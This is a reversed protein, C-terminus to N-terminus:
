RDRRFRKKLFALLYDADTLPARYALHGDPRMLWLRRGDGYRSRFEGHQDDWLQVKEASVGADELEFPGQSIVTVQLEHLYEDPLRSLLAHLIVWDRHDPDEGPQLLLHHLPQRLLEHVRCEDGQHRSVLRADPMRDGPLPGQHRRGLEEDPSADVLPSGRYDLNLQSAYRLIRRELNPRSGAFRLLSDRAGRLVRAQVLSARSLIDVSRLMEEAVPRREQQYSDLLAGGGRGQCFQALKWALNFADGIGTNMGQAAAPSQVHCADGALLIRNRRYESVLRRQIVLRSLLRPEGPLPTQEGLATRIRQYFPTMDARDPRRVGNEIEAGDRPVTVILRWGQRLPLAALAGGALMFAHFRDRPLDVQWPVDALLFHEEYDNGVFPLGLQERVLSQTGDCGVMLSADLSQVAGNRRVQATVGAGDQSFDLLETDRWLEGGLAVFRAELIAELQPQPCALIHDFPSALEQLNLSLLRNATGSKRDAYIDVAQYRQSHRAIEEGVGMADFIELTRTHLCLARSHPRPAALREILRCAVGARQLNIGLTLGTPGAGVILVQPQETDEQKARKARVGKLKPM